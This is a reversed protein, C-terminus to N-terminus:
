YTRSKFLGESDIQSDMQDMMEGTFDVNYPLIVYSNEGTRKISGGLAYAVGGLFDLIRSATEKNTHELSLIITTKEKFEEAINNVESMSQPRVLRMKLQITASIRFERANGRSQMSSLSQTDDAPYPTYVGDDGGEYPGEDVEDRRAGGTVRDFMEKIGM